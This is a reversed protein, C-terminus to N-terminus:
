KNKNLLERVQEITLPPNRRSLSKQSKGQERFAHQDPFSRGDVSNSADYPSRVEAVASTELRPPTKVTQGQLLNRSAGNFSHTSYQKASLGRTDAFSKERLSPHLFFTGVTGRRDIAASTTAIKKNQADNQLEMNPRLLRDVLSREQQQAYIAPLYLWVCCLTLLCRVASPQRLM